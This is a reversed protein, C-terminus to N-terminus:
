FGIREKRLHEALEKARGEARVLDLYTHIPSALWVGDVRQRFLLDGPSKTVIIVLNAGESVPRAGLEGLAAETASGAAMRIRVQSVNSLFPAYRQAAAEHTVAYDIGHSSCVGDLGAALADVKMSPVFFRRMAEAPQQRLSTAWADLLAAPQSVRRQKSPGQGRSDLWDLRELETLVMSVTSPSASVDEALETVGLWDERRMLLGHLVHARRGSFLSRIARSTSKSPPKDVFFLAGPAPLYLSGGADFYGVREFISRRWFMVNFETGIYRLYRQEASGFFRRLISGRAKKLGELNPHDAGYEGGPHWIQYELDSKDTYPTAQYVEPIQVIEYLDEDMGTTIVVDSTILAVVPSKCMRVFLNLARSIGINRNLLILSFGYQKQRELLWAQHFDPSGQDFLFVEARLNRSKREYFAALTDALVDRAMSEGAPNYNLILYSIDPLM